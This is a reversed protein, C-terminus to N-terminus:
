RADTVGDLPALRKSIEAAIEFVGPPRLVTLHGGPAIRADLEAVYPAWIEALPTVWPSSEAQFLLVHCPVTPPQYRLGAGIHADLVAVQRVVQDKPLRLLDEPLNLRHMLEVFASDFRLEATTRRDDALTAVVQASVEADREIMGVSGLVPLTSDIGVLLEVRDGAAEALKAIELGLVGGFSYGVLFYPGRAQLARIADFYSRAMVAVDDGPPTEFAVASAEVGIVRAVPSLEAALGAYHSVSGSVEHLCFLIREAQSENLHVVSVRTDRTGSETTELSGFVEFRPAPRTRAPAVAASPAPAKRDAPGSKVHRAMGAVTPHTFITRPSLRLGADRVLSILQISSFSDGGLEFFDDETGVQDLGLVEAFASAILREADNRPPVAGAGRGDSESLRGGSPQPAPLADRDVKGNENLPLAEVFVFADPIMYGPLQRACWQRAATATLADAPNTQCYAVLQTGGAEAARATVFCSVVDPHALLQAAVEGPEVRFGHVKVQDDTRGRFEFQGDPLQRVVDGTRYVVRSEGDFERRVFREATLDPRNLYGRALGGSIWLEGALGSPVQRGQDDTVYLRTDGLPVGIPVVSSPRTILAATATVTAETPGYLNMLPVSTIQFWDAVSSPMLPEGGLVLLRLSDALGGSTTLPATLRQWVSVPLQSITIGHRRFGDLVREPMWDHDGLVLRAGTALTPFIEGVSADFGPSLSQLCVDEPTLGYRESIQITRDRLAAHEVAVGKPTGTSGSTFLVYALDGPACSHEPDTAPCDALPAADVRVPTWPGDPLRAALEGTTVVLKADVDRLLFDLRDAPHDPDLPLYAGGAKHVALMAEILDTGRDLFLGVRDEARVGLGRLHHALQNARSNLERYTLRTAESASVVAVADPTRRAQDEILQRVTM